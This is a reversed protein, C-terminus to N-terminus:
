RPETAVSWVRRETGALGRILISLICIHAVKRAMVRDRGSTGVDKLQSVSTTVHRTQQQAFYRGITRCCDYIESRWPIVPAASLYTPRPSVM